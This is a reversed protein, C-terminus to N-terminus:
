FFKVHRLTMRFLAHDLASAPPLGHFISLLNISGNM